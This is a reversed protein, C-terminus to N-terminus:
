FAFGAGGYPGMFRDVHQVGDVLGADDLILGRWGGRLMLPGLHLAVGASVDLQRYPGFTGQARAEVDLPGAVCAEVSTAFSPATLSLDPASATTLGGELRWRLRDTSLVAWTLHASGLRIIDTGPTGDDTPLTLQTGQVDFGLSQGEIGLFLDGASGGGMAGVNLGLRVDLLPTSRAREVAMRARAAAARTVWLDAALESGAARAESYSAESYNAARAESYGAESYSAESYGPSVYSSSPVDCCDDDNDPPPPPTYASAEHPRDPQIPTAAHVRSGTDDDKKNDSSDPSKKGFRAEAAPAALLLGVAVGARLAPSFSPM